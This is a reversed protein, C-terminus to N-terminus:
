LENDNQSEIDNMPFAIRAAWGMGHYMEWPFGMGM